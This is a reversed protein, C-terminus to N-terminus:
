KGDRKFWSAIAHFVGAIKQRAKDYVSWVPNGSLLEAHRHVLQAYGVYDASAGKHCKGCTDVLNAKNTLSRRDTSKLVDHTAHCDWCSPADAAGNRYARGHYYDNYSATQEEHCKGCRTGGTLRLASMAATDDKSPISHGDHCDGCLPKVLGSSTVTSTATITSTDGPTRAPSHAGNAYLTFQEKHCNKCALKAVARWDSGNKANAHPTKYAFDVHCDTCAIAAHASRKLTDVDVFLSVLKGDVVRTLGKDAHCVTCGSKGATPLTFDLDYVSSAVVSGAPRSPSPAAAALTPVLLLACFLATAAIGGQRM